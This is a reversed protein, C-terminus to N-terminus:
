VLVIVTLTWNCFFFSITLRFLSPALALQDATFWWDYLLTTTVDLYLRTHTDAAARLRPTSGYMSCAVPSYETKSNRERKNVGKHEREKKREREEKIENM